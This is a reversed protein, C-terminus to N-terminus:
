IVICAPTLKGAPECGYVLTMKLKRESSVDENFLDLCIFAKAFASDLYINVWEGEM